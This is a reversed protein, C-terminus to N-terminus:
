FGLLQASNTGLLPDTLNTNIEGDGDDNAVKLLEFSNIFQTLKKQEIQRGIASVIWMNDDRTMVLLLGYREEPTGMNKGVELEMIQTQTKEDNTTKFITAQAGEGLYGNALMRALASSGQTIIQDAELGILGSVTKLQSVRFDINGSQDTAYYNILGKEQDGFYVVNPQTPFDVLFTGSPNQYRGALTEGFQAQPDSKKGGFWHWHQWGWWCVIVTAVVGGGIILWKKGGSKQEGGRKTRTM